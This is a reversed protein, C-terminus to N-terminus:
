PQGPIPIWHIESSQRQSRLINVITELSEIMCDLENDGETIVEFGLTTDDKKILNIDLAPMVGQSEVRFYTICGANGGQPGNTGAEVTIDCIGTDISCIWTLPLRQGSARESTNYNFGVSIVSM